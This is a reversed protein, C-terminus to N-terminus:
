EGKLIHDFARELLSPARQVKEKIVEKKLSQKEALDAVSKAEEALQERKKKEM